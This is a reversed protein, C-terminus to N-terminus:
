YRKVRDALKPLLPEGEPLPAVPPREAEVASLIEEEVDLDKELCKTEAEPKKAFLASIDSSAGTGVLSQASPRIGEAQLSTRRSKPRSPAYLSDESEKDYHGLSVIEEDDVHSYLPQQDEQQKAVLSEVTAALAAISSRIDELAKGNHPPDAVGVVVERSYDHEGSM